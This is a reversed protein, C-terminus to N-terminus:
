RQLALLVFNKVQSEGMNRRLKRRDMSLVSGGAKAVASWAGRRDHSSDLIAPVEACFEVAGAAVDREPADPGHKALEGV